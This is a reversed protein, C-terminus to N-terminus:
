FRHIAGHTQKPCHIAGHSQKPCCLAGLSQKPPRSAYQSQKPAVVQMMPSNLPALKSRTEQAVKYCSILSAIAEGVTGYCVEACCPGLRVGFM